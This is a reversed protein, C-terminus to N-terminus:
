RKKLKRKVLNLIPNLEEIKLWRATLFFLIGGFFIGTIIQFAAELHGNLHSSFPATLKIMLVMGIGMVLAALGSKLFSNWIKHGGIGKLKQRLILILLSMNILGMISFSIAFGGVGLNTYNLFFWNFVISALVATASVIVPTRIDQLAYFAKPLIMVAAHSFIALSYFLLAYATLSTDSPTFKQREFILKVIPYRLIILCTAAPLMIFFISRLTLALTNKYEDMKQESILSSLFPFFAM